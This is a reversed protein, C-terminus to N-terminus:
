QKRCCLAMKVDPGDSNQLALGVFDCKLETLVKECLKEFPQFDTSEHNCDNYEM